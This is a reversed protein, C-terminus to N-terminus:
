CIIWDRVPRDGRLVLLLNQMGTHSSGFSEIANPKEGRISNSQLSFVAGKYIFYFNAYSFHCCIYPNFSSFIKVLPNLNRESLSKYM